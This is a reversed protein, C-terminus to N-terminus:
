RRRRLRDWWRSLPYDPIPRVLFARTDVASSKVRHWDAELEVREWTYKHGWDNAVDKSGLGQRLQQHRRHTEDLGLYKYHFLLMEDRVPLEIRGIPEASHRGTRFNIESVAAPDFISAKMMKAWPMGMTIDRRLLADPSPLQDSVMQFGLAPILTVGKASCDGLYHQWEPHWLHEDIDTVIVWDAQNRSEKWCTNSLSQESLVFSDPHSRPFHRIDVKPHASLISLSADTSGDDFIIYRDVLPDYHRFFFPLMREDNWCQAYLHIQM